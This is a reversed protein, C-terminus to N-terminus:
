LSRSRGFMQRLIAQKNKKQNVHQNDSDSLFIVDVKIKYTNTIHEYFNSSGTLM